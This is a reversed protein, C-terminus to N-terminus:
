KITKISSLLAKYKYIFWKSITRTDQLLKKCNSIHDGKYFFFVKYSKALFRNNQILQAQLQSM